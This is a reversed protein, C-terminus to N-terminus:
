DSRLRNKYFEACHGSLVDGRLYEKRCKPCVWKHLKMGGAAVPKTPKM